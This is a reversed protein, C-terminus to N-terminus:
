EGCHMNLVTFSRPIWVREFLIRMAANLALYAVLIDLPLECNLSFALHFRMPTKKIRVDKTGSSSSSRLRDRNRCGHFYGTVDPCRRFDIPTRSAVGHKIPVRFRGSSALSAIFQGLPKEPLV